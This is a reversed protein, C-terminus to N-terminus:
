DDDVVLQRFGSVKCNAGSRALLEDRGTCIMGDGNKTVRFGSYYDRGLCAKELTASVLRQDRMFLILKNADGPRVGAIGAVPVCKGMKRETFRPPRATQDQSAMATPVMPLAASPRPSVVITVRQEIRVQQADVARFSETFAAFVAQEGQSPKESGAPEPTLRAQGTEAVPEREIAAEPLLLAFPALLHLAPYM